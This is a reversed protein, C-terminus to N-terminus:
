DEDELPLRKCREYLEKATSNGGFGEYPEMLHELNKMASPPISKKQIFYKTSQYIRDHLIAKLAKEIKADEEELEKFRADKRDKKTFIRQVILQIVAWLGSSGLMLGFLVVYINNELAEVM